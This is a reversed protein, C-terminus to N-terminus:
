QIDVGRLASATCEYVVSRINLQRGEQSHTARYLRNWVTDVQAVFCKCFAAPPVEPQLLPAAQCQRLTKGSDQGQLFLWAAFIAAGAIVVLASVSFLIRM